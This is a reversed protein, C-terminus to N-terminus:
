QDRELTANVAKEIIKKWDKWHAIKAKDAWMLSANRNVDKSPTGTYYVRRAYRTNWVLVIGDDEKDVYSSDRMTGQDVRVYYNADTLMQEQAAFLGQMCADKLTKKPMPTFKVEDTM